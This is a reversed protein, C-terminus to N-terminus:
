YHSPLLSFFTPCDSASDLISQFCKDCNSLLNQLNKSVDASKDLRTPDVECPEKAKIIEEVTTKLTKHLYPMATLKMFVDIGKSAMSNGRFLTNPDVLLSFNIASPFGPSYSFRLPLSLLISTSNVEQEIVGFIFHIARSETDFIKILSGAAGERNSSFKGLLSSILYNDERIIELLQIYHSASLIKDEKLNTILQFSARKSRRFKFTL